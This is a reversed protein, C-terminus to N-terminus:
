GFLKQWFSKNREQELAKKLNMNQRLIKQAKVKEDKAVQEQNSIRKELVKMAKQWDHERNSQDTLLMTARKREEREQEFLERFQEKQEELMKLKEELVAIRVVSDDQVSQHAHISAKSVDNIDAGSQLQSKSNLSVANSGYVRILESIDIKERGTKDDKVVSIGKEEIHRYFTPRKIGLMRAAEAKTLLTEMSM